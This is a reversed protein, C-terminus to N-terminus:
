HPGCGQVSAGPFSSFIRDLHTGPVAGSLGARLARLISFGTREGSCVRGGIAPTIHEPAELTCESGTTQSFEVSCSM